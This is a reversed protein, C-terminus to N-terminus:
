KPKDVSIKSIKLLAALQDRDCERGVCLKDVSVRWGNGGNQVHGVAERFQGFVATKKASIFIAGKQQKVQLDPYTKELELALNQLENQNVSADRVVPVVPKLAEVEKLEARMTTLTQAQVAAYLGISAAMAWAIGAAILANKGVTEPLRELFDNFDNAAKPDMLRKLTSMNIFNNIAM